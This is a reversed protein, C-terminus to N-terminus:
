DRGIFGGGITYSLRLLSFYSNVAAQLAPLDASELLVTVGDRTKKVSELVRNSPVRNAEPKVSGLVVDALGPETIEFEVKAKM